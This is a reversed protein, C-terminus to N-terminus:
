SYKDLESLVIKWADEAAVSNYAFRNTDNFFAHGCDSYIKQEYNVNAQKMKVPLDQTQVALGEDNKGYFARVPCNIKKLEEVSYDAHGYFALALKLRPESLALSFSYTGGFCFGIVSVSRKAEVLDYLYGFCNKVNQLTTKGFEPKQMPTMLSRLKPQAENRKEPNFLDEQLDVLKSPDIGSSTLLDPALALYGEAALRDAVSKIHDTLGWVEHIVLVAAKPEGVPRALYAPLDNVETMEGM